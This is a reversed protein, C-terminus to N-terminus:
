AFVNRLGLKFFLDFGEDMWRTLLVTTMRLGAAPLSSAFYQCPRTSDILRPQRM